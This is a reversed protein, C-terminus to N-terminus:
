NWGVEYGFKTIPIGWGEEILKKLFATPDGQPIELVLRGTAIPKMSNAKMIGSINEESVVYARTAKLLKVWAVDSYFVIKRRKEDLTPPPRMKSFDKAFEKKIAEADRTQGGGLDWEKDLIIFARGMGDPAFKNTMPISPAVLIFYAQPITKERLQAIASVLDKLDHPAEVEGYALMPFIMLLMLIPYRM